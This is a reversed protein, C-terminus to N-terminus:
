MTLMKKMKEFARNRNKSFGQRSIKLVESCESVNYGLGFQFRIASLESRTLGQMSKEIDIKRDFDFEIAKEWDEFPLNGKLLNDVKSLRIYENRLCVAYYKDPYKDGTVIKTICLFSWLDSEADPDFLKRAYYKILGKFQANEEFFDRKEEFVPSKKM